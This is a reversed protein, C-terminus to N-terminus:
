CWGLLTLRARLWPTYREDGRRLEEVLTRRDIARVAAVEAPDPTITGDYTGTFSQQLENDLVDDAPLAVTAHVIDGLPTLAVGSVGLEEALGRRAGDVFTEGPKLHEGVSVDWADPWLDKDAARRQLYLRGLRDFLLVNAARHWDGSRHVDGRRRIGIPRGTFTFIEFPEDSAVAPTV